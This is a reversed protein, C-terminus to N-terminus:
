NVLQVRRKKYKMIEQCLIEVLNAFLLGLIIYILFKNTEDFVDFIVTLLVVLFILLIGNVNFIFHRPFVNSILILIGGLAM